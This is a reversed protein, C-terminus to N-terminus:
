LSTRSVEGNVIEDRQLEFLGSVGVETVWCKMRNNYTWEMSRCLCM